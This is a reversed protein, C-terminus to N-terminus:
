RHLQQVCPQEIHAKWSAWIGDHYLCTTVTAGAPVRHADNGDYYFAKNFNVLGTTDDPDGQVTMNNGNGSIDGWLLEM